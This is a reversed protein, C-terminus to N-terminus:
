YITHLGKRFGRVPLLREARQKGKPLQLCQAWSLIGFFCVNPNRLFMRNRLFQPDRLFRPNRLFELNRLFQPDRLFKPSRLFKPDRLSVLPKGRAGSEWVAQHFSLDCVAPDDLLGNPWRPRRGAM